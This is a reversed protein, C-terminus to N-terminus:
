CSLGSLWDRVKVATFILRPEEVLPDKASDRHLRMLKSIQAKPTAQCTASFVESCFYDSM